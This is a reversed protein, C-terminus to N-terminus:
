LLFLLISSTICCLIRNSSIPYTTYGSATRLLDPRDRLTKLDISIDFSKSIPDDGGQLLRHSNHQLKRRSPKIFGLRAEGTGQVVSGVRFFDATPLSEFLCFGIGNTTCTYEATASPVGDIVAYQNIIEGDIVTSWVFTWVAEIIIGDDLAEESLFLCIPVVVGQVFFQVQTQEHSIPDCIFANVRYDEEDYTRDRGPRPKAEVDIASFFDGTLVFYVTVITELFNVQKALADDTKSGTWLMYRMCFTMAARPRGDSGPPVSDDFIDPNQSLLYPDLRITHAATQSDISDFLIGDLPDRLVTGSCDQDYIKTRVNESPSIAENVGYALTITTTEQVFSVSPEEIAWLDVLANQAESLHTWRSLIVILCYLYLHM